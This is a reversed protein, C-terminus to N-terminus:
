ISWWVMGFQKKYIITKTTAVSHVKYITKDSCIYLFTPFTLKKVLELLIRTGPSSTTQEVADLQEKMNNWIKRFSTLLKPEYVPLAGGKFIGYGFSSWLLIATIDQKINEHIQKIQHMDMIKEKHIDQCCPLEEYIMAGSKETEESVM